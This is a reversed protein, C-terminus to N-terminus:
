SDEEPTIDIMQSPNMPPSVPIKGGVISALKEVLQESAGEFKHSHEVTQKDGFETPMRSKALFELLRDSYQKEVAIRKGDHYIGREIGDVGRRKIEARIIDDGDMLAEQYAEEFEPDAKRRRRFYGTGCGVAAAADKNTFGQRILELFGERIDTDRGKDWKQKQKITITKGNVKIKAKTPKRPDNVLPKRREKRPM